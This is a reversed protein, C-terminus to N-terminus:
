PPPAPGPLPPGVRTAPRPPLVEVVKEPQVVMKLQMEHRALRVLVKSLECLLVAGKVGMVHRVVPPEFHRIPDLLVVAVPDPPTKPLARRLRGAIVQDPNAARGAACARKNLASRCEPRGCVRHRAGVRRDKTFRRKCIACPRSDSM